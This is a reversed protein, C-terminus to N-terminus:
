GGRGGLASRLFTQIRTQKEREAHAHAAPKGGYIFAGLGEYPVAYLDTTPRGPPGILHGADPYCIFQDPHRAAHGTARLRAMAADAFLCSPWVGDDGAGILLIPGETQEIPITAAAIM